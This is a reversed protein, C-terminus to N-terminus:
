TAEMGKWRAPVAQLGHGSDVAKLGHAMEELRKSLAPSMDWWAGRGRSPVHDQNRRRGPQPLLVLCDHEVARCLWLYTKHCLGALMKWDFFSVSVFKQNWSLSAGFGLAASPRKRLPKGKQRAV